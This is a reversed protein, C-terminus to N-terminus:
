FIMNAFCLLFTLSGIASLGNVRNCYDMNKCYCYTYRKNATQFDYCQGDVIPVVSGNSVQVNPDNWCGSNYTEYSVHPKLPDLMKVCFQTADCFNNLNDCSSESIKGPAYDGVWGSCSHCRLCDVAPFTALLLMPVAWNTM